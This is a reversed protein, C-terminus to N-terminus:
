SSGITMKLNSSPRRYPNRSHDTRGKEGASTDQRTLHGREPDNLRRRQRGNGVTHGGLVLAPLHLGPVVLHLDLGEVLDALPCYRAIILTM